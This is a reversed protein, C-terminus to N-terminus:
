IKRVKVLERQVKNKLILIIQYASLPHLSPMFDIKHILRAPNLYKKPASGKLM